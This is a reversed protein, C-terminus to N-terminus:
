DVCRTCTTIGEREFYIQIDEDLPVNETDRLDSDPEYIITGDKETKKIVPVADENKWTIANL